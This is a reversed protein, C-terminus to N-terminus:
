RRYRMRPSNKMGSVVLPPIYKPTTEAKMPEIDLKSNALFYEVDERLETIEKRIAKIINAM